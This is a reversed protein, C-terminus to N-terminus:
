QRVRRAALRSKVLNRNLANFESKAAALKELTYARKRLMNEVWTCGRDKSCIYIGPAAELVKMWHQISPSLFDGGLKGHIAKDRDAKLKILDKEFRKIDNALLTLDAHDEM